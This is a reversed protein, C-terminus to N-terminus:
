ARFSAGEGETGSIRADDEGVERIGYVSLICIAFYTGTATRIPDALIFGATILGYIFFCIMLGLKRLKNSDLIVGLILILTTTVFVYGWGMEGLRAFVKLQTPVHNLMGFSMFLIVAWWTTVISL